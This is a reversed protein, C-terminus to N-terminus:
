EGWLPSKNLQWIPETGSVNEVGFSTFAAHAQDRQFHDKLKAYRQGSTERLANIQYKLERTKRPDPMELSRCKIPKASGRKRSWFERPRLGSLMQAFGEWGLKSEREKLALYPLSAFHKLRLTIKSVTKFDSSPFVVKALRCADEYGVRFSLITGSTNLVASRIDPTLQHLYQHALILSLAYKRSESLIDKINDTTYNQFEDLYLYYPNRSNSNTRSLAAKQIQAVIFAGLLASPGEGLIGKPIHVLLICKEDMVQRFDIREGRALM